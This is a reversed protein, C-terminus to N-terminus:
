RGGSGVEINTYQVQQPRVIRICTRDSDAIRWIEEAYEVGIGTASHVAVDTEDVWRMDKDLRSIKLSGGTLNVVNFRANSKTRLPVFTLEGSCSSVTTPPDAKVPIGPIRKKVNPRADGQQDATASVGGSILLGIALGCAILFHCQKARIM